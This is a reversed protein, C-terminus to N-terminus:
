GFAVLAAVIFSGILCAIALIIILTQNVTGKKNLQAYYENDPMKKSRISKVSNICHTKYIKNAMMGSFFMLGLRLFSFISAIPILKEINIGIDKGPVLVEVFRVFTILMEPIAFVIFSLLILAGIAYMKRYLFFVGNLFFASLNLAMANKGMMKFKLLYQDSNKGIFVALDKVAVEDITDDPDLGGFPTTFPNYPMYDRVPGQNNPRGMNPAGMNPHEMNNPPINNPNGQPPVTANQAFQEFQEIPPEMESGCIKCVTMGMENTTGCRPCTNWRQGETERLGDVFGKLKDEESEWSKGSAHLDELICHGVNKICERHYPAGCDPCIVIDDIKELKVKCIPCENGAYNKM